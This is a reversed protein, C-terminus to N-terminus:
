MEIMLHWMGFMTNFFPKVIYKLSPINYQKLNIIICTFEIGNDIYDKQMPNLLIGHQFLSYLLDLTLM